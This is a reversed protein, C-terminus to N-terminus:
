GNVTDDTSTDDTDHMTDDTSTGDTDDMDGNMQDHMAGHQSQMHELMTLCMQMHMAMDDMDGMDDDHMAGPMMTM